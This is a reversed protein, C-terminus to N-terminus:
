TDYITLDDLYQATVPWLSQDMRTDAQDLSSMEAPIFNSIQLHKLLNIIFFMPINM